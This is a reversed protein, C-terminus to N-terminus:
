KSEQLEPKQVTMTAPLLSVERWVLSRGPSAPLRRSCRGFRRGWEQTVIM